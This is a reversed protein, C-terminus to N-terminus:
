FMVLMVFFGLTMAGFVIYTVFQSDEFDINMARGRWKQKHKSPPKHAAFCCDV